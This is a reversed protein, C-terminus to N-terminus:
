SWGEGILAEGYEHKMQVVQHSLGADQAIDLAKQIVHRWTDHDGEVYCLKAYTKLVITRHLLGRHLSELREVDRELISRAKKLNGYRIYSEALCQDNMFLILVPDETHQEGVEAAKKALREVEKISFRPQRAIAKMKGRYIHPIWFRSDYTEKRLLSEAYTYANCAEQHLALNNYATAVANLLSLQLSHAQQQLSREMDISEIVNLAFKARYLADDPRNLACQADHLFICIQAFELPYSVPHIWQLASISAERLMQYHAKAEHAVLAYSSAAHEQRLTEVIETVAHEALEYQLVKDGQAKRERALLMHQLVDERQELELPLADVIRRATASSPIRPEDPNCLYSLYRPEIGIREAFQRKSGPLKLVSNLVATYVEKHLVAQWYWHTGLM